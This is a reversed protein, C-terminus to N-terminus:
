VVVRHLREGLRSLIENTITGTQRAIDCATIEEDGSKGIIVAVEGTEIDPIDTVDVLTQDMCIRGIVPSKHGHILVNGVGCSLSRPLGDAYGISLAAIRRDRNAQFSLGYGASEGCKLDRISAVRAKLSLVPFLPFPCNEADEKTSLMGYLAIGIRAYDAAYSPYNCVGYSSLLHIKPCPYGRGKLESIVHYFAHVQTQTFSHGKASCMDAACLHTFLGDIQLHSMEYIACIQEIHEYREGLRHMGTDIALHVHFLFAGYEQLLSAYAHDVVTQTLDYQLLLPFQEPDTYGLILITGHIGAQRLRVGEDVCAVCFANVGLRNLEKTILIDGHGYANAKVAPMLECSEPLYKRFAEVNARLASLDLEIWARSKENEDKANAQM